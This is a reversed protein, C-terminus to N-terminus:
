PRRPGRPGGPGPGGPGPGGPGPGGPGPGGPGGPGGGNNGPQRPDRGENGGSQQQQQQPLFENARLSLDCAVDVAGVGNTGQLGAYAWATREDDKETGWAQNEDFAVLGAGHLVVIRFRGDDFGLEIALAPAAPDLSSITFPRGIAVATGKRRHRTLAQGKVELRGDRRLLQLQVHLSGPPQNGPNPESPTAASSRVGFTLLAKDGEELRVARVLWAVVRPALGGNREVVAVAGAKRPELTVLGEPTVSAGISPRGRAAKPDDIAVWRPDDAALPTRDPAAPAKPAAETAPVPGAETPPPPPTPPVPRAETVIPSPPKETAPKPAETAPKPLLTETAPQPAETAPKPLAETAPKPPLPTAETAPKPPAERVPTPKPPVTKPPAETTPRPATETVALQSTEGKSSLLLGAGVLVFLGLAGMVLIVPLASAPAKEEEDEEAEDEAELDDVTPPLALAKAKPAGTTSRPAWAAPDAPKPAQTRVLLAEVEALFAAATRPREDRSKAMCRLVLSAAAASVHPAVARPDPAPDNVVRSVVALATNGEFPMRGTLLQYLSAGIGYIDTRIDIDPAGDAQEPSMFQPTGVILGSQTMRDEGKQSRALGLDALKATGDESIFINSPKIDRHILGAREIATLGRACDRALELARREPLRGGSRTLLQQADGGRLLEMALYLRGAEAGAAFVTVVNAHVISAAARAERLFRDVAQATSAFGPSLVKLAVQRGLSRQVALYVAGMGGRGLEKQVEFDGLLQPAQGAQVPPLTAAFPSSPASPAPSHAASTTVFPNPGLAQQAAGVSRSVAQVTHPAMLGREVLLASVPRGQLRAAGLTQEAEQPTLLAKELAARLFVSDPDQVPAVGSM